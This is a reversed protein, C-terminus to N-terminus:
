LAPPVSVQFFQIQAAWQCRFPLVRPNEGIKQVGRQFEAFFDEGLKEAIEDYKALIGRLDAQV